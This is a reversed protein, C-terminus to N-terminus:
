PENLIENIDTKQMETSDIQMEFLYRDTDGIILGTTFGVVSGFAAVGLIGLGAASGPPKDSDDSYLITALIAAGLTTPLLGIMLGGVGGSIHNKLKIEKIRKNSTQQNQGTESNILRITDQDIQLDKAKIFKDNTLIIEGDNTNGYHQLRSFNRDEESFNRVVYTHTCNNFSM